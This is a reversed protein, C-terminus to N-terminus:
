SDQQKLHLTGDPDITIADQDAGSEDGGPVSAAKDEISAIIDEPKGMPEVVPEAASTAVPAVVSATTTEEKVEAKVSSAISAAETQMLEDSTINPSV